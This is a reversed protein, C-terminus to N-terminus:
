RALCHFVHVPLLTVTRRASYGSCRITRAGATGTSPWRILRELARWPLRSVGRCAWGLWHVRTNRGATDRDLSSAVLAPPGPSRVFVHLCGGAWLPRHTKSYTSATDPATHSRFFDPTTVVPSTFNGSHWFDPVRPLWEEGLTASPSSLNERTGFLSLCESFSPV